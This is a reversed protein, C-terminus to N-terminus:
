QKEFYTTTGDNKLLLKDLSQYFNDEGVLDVFGDRKLKTYVSEKAGTFSMKKGSDQLKKVIENLTEISSVDLYTIGRFVFIFYEYKDIITNVQRELESANAFFLSGSAYVIVADTTNNKENLNVKEIPSFEIVIKSKVVMLIFSLGVGILIAYTLDLLLTCIMTVVFLLIAEWQKKKFYGKIASWDNMKWATAFLVGALACYPIIAIIKPLAFLCLVLFVSQMISTVRTQGGSKIAVSTRAIAATAPVGGFFPVVMNGIGQAVLEVNSDFLENKMKAACVGCLLSEIMGLAAITFAPGILSTIMDGTINTFSLVESNVLTGKIEGIKNVNFFDVDFLGLIITIVTIAILSVLTGPVYKALKKPYLFIIATAIVTLIVSMWNVDGMQHAFVNIVKGMTSSGSLQVGFFNGFQGFAIVLSIGSTFGVIVPRPIFQILKGFKLLGAVLLIGGAMFTALFMCQIGNEQAVISGLIVTMAGTPGSIQFSGGGLAGIIVGAFIATIMGAVIGLQPNVEVSAAGFALALPLAVAAVTLGALVDKIFKSTNYGRFENEFIMKYHGFFNRKKM